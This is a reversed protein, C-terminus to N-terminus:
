KWVCIKIIILEEMIDKERERFLKILYRVDMM